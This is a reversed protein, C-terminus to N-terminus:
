TEDAGLPKSMRQMSTTYCLREYFAIAGENFAYVNLDVRDAGQAAAWAEARAMLARGAGARRFRRGVVLNDVVAFRRPVFIPIDPADRVMVVVAGVPAEGQAAVFVATAEDALLEDVYARARAPGDPARFVDPAAERHLADVEDFLACLAEYDAGTAARVTLPKTM